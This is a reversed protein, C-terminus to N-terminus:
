QVASPQADNCFRGLERELADLLGEPVSLSKRHTLSIPSQQIVIGKPIEAVVSEPMSSLDYSVHPTFGGSRSSHIREITFLRALEQLRKEQTAVYAICVEEPSETFLMEPFRLLFIDWATSKVTALANEFPTSSQIGLLKGARDCFYHLALHAERALMIGLDQRLFRIFEEYKRAASSKPQESKHVLVMKILAIQTAKIMELLTDRDYTNVFSTVRHEAVESLTGVGAENLYHSVAEPNQVIEGTKLFHDEDMSHLHLLSETRRIANPLFDGISSKAFHELYYFMPNFDWRKETVFRLFSELGDPTSRGSVRKDIADLINSDLLESPYMSIQIKGSSLFESNLLAPRKGEFQDILYLPLREGFQQTGKLFQSPYPSYLVEWSFTDSNM